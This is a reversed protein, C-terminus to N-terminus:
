WQILHEPPILDQERLYQAIEWALAGNGAENFHQLGNPLLYKPNTLSTVLLSKVGRRLMAEHLEDIHTLLVFEAGHERSEEHMAYVLAEGLEYMRTVFSEDQLNKRDAEAQSAPRTGSGSKSANLSRLSTRLTGLFRSHSFLFRAAGQLLGGKASDASSSEPPPVPSNELVLEGDQLVFRPKERGWRVTHMHRHDGYHAVYAMTLDPEYRFGNLRLSLLEQDVGYGDIGMNIVEVDQFYGELITSFHKEIPVGFGFTRSDGLLLIRFTGDPKEHTTEEDRFGHSNVRYEIDYGLRDSTGRALPRLSWGLLEDFRGIERPVVPSIQPKRTILLMGRVGFEAGLFTLFVLLLWLSARKRKSLTM